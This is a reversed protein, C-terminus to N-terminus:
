RPRWRSRRRRHCATWVIGAISSAALNGFAQAAALLGFASGRVDTPAHVAVATHEATEVCGIAVGAAAFCALLSVPSPGTIALGVYAVSFLGAGTVLM